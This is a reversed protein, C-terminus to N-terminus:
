QVQTLEASSVPYVGLSANSSNFVAVLKAPYLDAKYVSFDISGVIKKNNGFPSIWNAPLNVKVGLVEVHASIITSETEALDIEIEYDTYLDDLSNHQLCTSCNPGWPQGRVAWPAELRDVHPLQEPEGLSTSTCHNRAEEIQADTAGDRKWRKLWELPIPECVSIDLDTVAPTERAAVCWGAHDMLQRDGSANAIARLATCANVERPVPCDVGAPRPCLPAPGPETGAYTPPPDDGSAYLANLVEHARLLPRQSWLRASAGSVVATAFSTGGSGGRVGGSGLRAEDAVAIGAAHALLPSLSGQRTLAIPRGSFNVGGVAAVLPGEPQAANAPRSFVNSCDLQAANLNAWAAPTLAGADGDDAANGAAAVVLAGRCRAEAIAVLVAETGISFSRAGAGPVYGTDTGDPVVLESARPEHLSQGCGPQQCDHKSHWGLSMNVVLRAHAPNWARLTDNLAAAIEGRSGIFGGNERDYAVMWGQSTRETSLIPLALRNEIQVKCPQTGLCAVREALLGVSRGHESNDESNKRAYFPHAATDVTALTVDQTAAPWSTSKVIASAGAIGVREDTKAALEDLSLSGQASVVACDVEWQWHANDLAQALPGLKPEPAPAGGREPEWSYSCYAHHRNVAAIRSLWRGGPTPGPTPCLEATPPEGLPGDPAADGDRRAIVSHAPCAAICQFRAPWRGVGVWSGDSRRAELALLTEAQVADYSLSFTVARTQQATFELTRADSTLPIGPTATVDSSASGENPPLSRIRLKPTLTGNSTNGIQATVEVRDGQWDLSTRRESPCATSLSLLRLPQTTATTSDASAPAVNTLSPSVPASTAVTANPTGANAPGQAPAVQAAAAGAVLVLVIARWLQRRGAGPKRKATYRANGGASPKLSKQAFVVPKM